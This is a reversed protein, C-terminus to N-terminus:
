KRYKLVVQEVAKILSQVVPTWVAVPYGPSKAAYDPPIELPCERAITASLEDRVHDAVSSGRLGALNLTLRGSTYVTLLSRHCVASDKVNFSGEKVGVGWKVEFGGTVCSDYIQRVAKMQPVTLKSAAHEFFKPEDWGKNVQNEAVYRISFEKASNLLAPPLKEIPLHVLTVRERLAIEKIAKSPPYSSIFAFSRENCTRLVLQLWVFLNNTKTGPELANLRDKMVHCFERGEVMPNLSFFSFDRKYHMLRGDDNSDSVPQETIRSVIGLQDLPVDMWNGPKLSVNHELTNTFDIFGARLMESEDLQPSGESNVRVTGRGIAASISVERLAGRLLEVVTVVDTEPEASVEQEQEQLQEVQRSRQNALNELLENFRIAVHFTGDIFANLEVDDQLFAVPSRATVVLWKNKISFRPPGNLEVNFELAMKLMSADVPAELELIPVAVLLITDDEADISIFGHAGQRGIEWYGDENRSTDEVGREKLFYEIRAIIQADLAPLDIQGSSTVKGRKITDVSEDEILTIKVIDSKKPPIEQTLVATMGFTRLHALIKEIAANSKKIYGFAELLRSLKPQKRRSTSQKLGNFLSLTYIHRARVFVPELRKQWQEASQFRDAPNMRLAIDITELFDINFRNNAFSVAPVIEANGGKRLHADPPLKNTIIEYFTVGLAYIDTWPGQNGDPEYQEFPAYSKTAIVTKGEIDTKKAAGFDLLVPKGDKKLYINAPKIDRHILGSQHVYALGSLIDSLLTVLELESWFKKSVAVDLPDGEVFPMVLYATNNAKFFHKIQVINPHSHPHTLQHLSKAEKLFANLGWDMEAQKSKNKLVVLGDKSRTVWESPFFEKIVDDSDLDRHHGRYTIGFGGQGLFQDIVFEGVASNEPLFSM